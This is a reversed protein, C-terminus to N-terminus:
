QHAQNSHTDEYDNFTYIYVPSNETVATKKMPADQRSM